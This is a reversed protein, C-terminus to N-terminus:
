AKTVWEILEYYEIPCYFVISICHGDGYSKNINNTSIM